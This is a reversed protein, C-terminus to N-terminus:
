PYINRLCVLRYDPVCSVCHVRNSPVSPVRLCAAFAALCTLLDLLGASLGPPISLSCAASYVLLILCALALALFCCALLVAISLLISEFFFLLCSSFRTSFCDLPASPRYSLCAFPRVFLRILSDSLCGSASVMGFDVLTWGELRRFIFFAVAQRPFDASACCNSEVRTAWITFQQRVVTAHRWCKADVHTRVSPKHSSERHPSHLDQRTRIRGVIDSSQLTQEIIHDHPIPKVNM